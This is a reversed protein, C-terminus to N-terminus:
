EKPTSVFLDMGLCQSLFKAVLQGKVSNGANDLPPAFTGLGGSVMPAGTSDAVSRDLWAAEITAASRAPDVKCTLAARTQEMQQRMPEPEKDM